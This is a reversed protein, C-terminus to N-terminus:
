QKEAGFAGVAGVFGRDNATAMTSTGHHAQFVGGVATPHAAHSDTAARRFFQAVWGGVWNLGDAAGVTNGNIAFGGGNFDGGTLGGIDNALLATWNGLSTGSADKFNAISGSLRVWKHDFDATLTADATFAGSAGNREGADRKSWLGAAAGTYTASGTLADFQTFSGPWYHHRGAVFANGGRTWAINLSVSNRKTKHISHHTPDNGFTGVGVADSNPVREWWGFSLYSQGSSAKSYLAVTDTLTVGAGNTRSWARASASWGSIAPPTNAAVFPTPTSSNDDNDLEGGLIGKSVKHLSIPLVHYPVGLTLPRDAVPWSVFPDTLADDALSVIANATGHATAGALTSPATESTPPPPLTGALRESAAPVHGATAAGGASSVTVVGNESTVTLTCDNGGAPCSFRM